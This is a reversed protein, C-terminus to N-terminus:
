SYDYFIFEEGIGHLYLPNNEYIKMDISCIVSHVHLEDFFHCFSLFDFVSYYLVPLQFKYM